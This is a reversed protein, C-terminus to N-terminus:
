WKGDTVRNIQTGLITVTKPKVFDNEPLSHDGTKVDKAAVSDLGALETSGDFAVLNEAYYEFWPLGANTYDLATPPLDPPM